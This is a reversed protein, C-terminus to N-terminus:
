EDQSFRLHSSWTNVMHLDYPGLTSIAVVGDKNMIEKLKEPIKATEEKEDPQQNGRHSYQDKHKESRIAARAMEHLWDKIAEIRRYQSWM